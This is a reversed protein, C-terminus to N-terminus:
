GEAAAKDAAEDLDQAAEAAEELQPLMSDFVQMSCHLPVILHQLLTSLVSLYHARVEWSCPVAVPSLDPRAVKPMDAQQWVKPACRAIIDVVQPAMCRLRMLVTFRLLLCCM